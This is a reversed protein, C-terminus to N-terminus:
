SKKASGGVTAQYLSGNVMCEHTEHSRMYIRAAYIEDGGYIMEIKDGGVKSVQHHNVM